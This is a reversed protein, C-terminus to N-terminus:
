SRVEVSLGSRATAFALGLCVAIAVEFVAPAAFFYRLSLVAFGLYCIAFLGIIPRIRVVGDKVLVALQWFLISQVLLNLSGFLGSGFLFDWYSRTSGMVDFRYAKMTEIVAIEQPGHSPSGFVGGLTHGAFHILTLVSAARLLAVPKM